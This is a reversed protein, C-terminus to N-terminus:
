KKFTAISYSRVGLHMIRLKAWGKKRWIKKMGTALDIYERLAVKLSEKFLRDAEKRSVVKEACLWDHLVAPQSHWGVRSILWRLGKPISAFDTNTWKPVLYWGGSESYYSFTALTKFWKGDIPEKRHRLDLEGIFRATKM